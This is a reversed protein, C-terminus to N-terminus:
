KCCYIGKSVKPDQFLSSPITFPEEDALNRDEYDSELRGYGDYVGKEVPKRNPFEIGSHSANESFLIIVQTMWRSTENTSYQSRISHKCGECDWSFFGM